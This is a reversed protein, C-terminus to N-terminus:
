PAPSKSLIQSRREPSLIGVAELLDLGGTVRPDDSFLRSRWTALMFRLRGVVPHTSTAILEQESETFEAFFEGADTWVKRASSALEGETMDRIIWDREVRDEKWVLVPDAAQGDLVAPIPLKVLPVVDPPTWLLGPYAAPDRDIPEPQPTDPAADEPLVPDPANWPARPDEATFMGPPTAAFWDPEGYPTVPLDVLKLTSSIGFTKM